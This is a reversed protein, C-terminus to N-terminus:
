EISLQVGFSTSKALSHKCGSLVTFGKAVTTKASFSFNMDQTAKAKLKTNYAALNFLFGACFNPSGGKLSHEVSGALKLEKNVNIVNHVKFHKLDKSAVLALFIPDSTFRFGLNPLKETKPSMKTGFTLKQMSRTLEVTCDAPNM